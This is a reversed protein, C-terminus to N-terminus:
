YWYSSLLNIWVIDSLEDCLQLMEQATCLELRHPWDVQPSNSFEMLRRVIRLELAGAEAARGGQANGGHFPTQGLEGYFGLSPDIISPRGHMVPHRTAEPFLASSAEATKGGIIAKQEVTSPRRDDKTPVSSPIAAFGGVHGMAVGGSISSNGGIVDVGSSGAVGSSVSLAGVALANVGDHPAALVTGGGDNAAAQAALGPTRAALHQGAPQQTQLQPASRRTGSPCHVTYCSIQHTSAM